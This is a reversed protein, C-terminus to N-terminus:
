HLILLRRTLLGKNTTASLIYTGNPLARVDLTIQTNENGSCEAHLYGQTDMLRLQLLHDNETTRLHVFTGAPNPIVSLTETDKAFTITNTILDYCDPTCVSPIFGPLHSLSGSTITNSMMVAVRNSDLQLANVLSLNNETKYCLPVLNEDLHVLLEQEFTAYTVLYHDNDLRQIGSINKALGSIFTAFYNGVIFNSQTSGTSDIVTLYATNSPGNGAYIFRTMVIGKNKYPAIGNIAAIAPSIIQNEWKRTGDQGFESLVRWNSTQPTYYTLVKDGATYITQYGDGTGTSLQYTKAWILNGTSDLRVLLASNSFFPPQNPPPVFGCLYISGDEAIDADYVKAGLTLGSLFINKQWLINGRQNMRTLMFDNPAMENVLFSEGTRTYFSASPLEWESSDLFTADTRYRIQKYVVTPGQVPGQITTFTLTDENRQIGTFKVENFQNPPQNISHEYQINHCEAQGHLCVTGICLLITVTIKLM